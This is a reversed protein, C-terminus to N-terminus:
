HMQWLWISVIGLTIGASVLHAPQFLEVLRRQYLLYAGLGVYYFVFAPERKALFALAILIGPAVWLALGRVQKQDLFFWLWLSLSVLLTFSMDIEGLTAKNIFEPSLALGLALFTLGPIGLWRQHIILMSAILLLLCIFSTLRISLETIEGFPLSVAVVLWNYLPPKAVYVEEMYRPVIYNGSQQMDEAILARRPEEHWLQLTDLYPLCLVISLLATAVFIGAITRQKDM